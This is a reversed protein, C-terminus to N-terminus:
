SRAASNPAASFLCDPAHTPFESRADYVSCCVLGFTQVSTIGARYIAERLAGEVQVLEREARVLRLRVRAVSRVARKHRDSALRVLKLAPDIKESYRRGGWGSVVRAEHCAGPLLLIPGVGSVSLLEVLRSVARRLADRM